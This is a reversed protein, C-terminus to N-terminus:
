RKEFRGTKQGLRIAYVIAREPAKMATGGVPLATESAPVTKLKEVLLGLAAMAEAESLEEFKGWAIVSRWNGLNEVQDVQFCVEPNQRMMEVKLGLSSHGIIRQGDFAYTIPVIYTRGDVHCGIRGVSETLLVSDIEQATLNGLM